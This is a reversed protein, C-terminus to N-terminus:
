VHQCNNQLVIIQCQKEEPYKSLKSQSMQFFGQPLDATMASVDSEQTV